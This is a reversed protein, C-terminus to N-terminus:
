YKFLLNHDVSGMEGGGFDASGRHEKDENIAQSAEHGCGHFRPVRNKVKGQGHSGTDAHSSASKAEM